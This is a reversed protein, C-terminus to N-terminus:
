LFESISTNRNSEYFGFYEASDGPAQWGWRESNLNGFWIWLQAGEEGWGEAEGAGGALRAGRPEPRQGYQNRM